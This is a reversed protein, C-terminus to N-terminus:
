TRASDHADGAQWLFDLANELSEGVPQWQNQLGGLWSDNRTAPAAPVSTTASPATEPVLLGALLGGAQKGLTAYPSDGDLTVPNVTKGEGIERGSRSAVLSGSLNRRAAIEAPNEFSPVASLTVLAVLAALSALLTARTRAVADGPVTLDRSATARPVPQSTRPPVRSPAASRGSASRGNELAHRALVVSSLDVEPTEDRWRSIADALTQASEWFIRCHECEAIHESFGPTEEVSRADLQENLRLEFETCNM